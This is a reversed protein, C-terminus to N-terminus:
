SKIEKVPNSSTLEGRGLEEEEALHTLFGRNPSTPESLAALGSFLFVMTKTGVIAPVLGPGHLALWVNVTLLAGAGISGFALRLRDRGSREQPPGILGPRPVLPPYEGTAESETRERLRQIGLILRAEDDERLDKGETLVKIRVWVERTPHRLPLGQNLAEGSTVADRPSLLYAGPLVDPAALRFSTVRGSFWVADEEFGLAGDDWGTVVDDQQVVIRVPLANVGPELLGETRPLGPTEEQHAVRWVSRHPVADM